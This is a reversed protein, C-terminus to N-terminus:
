GDGVGQGSRVAPYLFKRRQYHPGDHPIEGEAASPSQPDKRIRPDSSLDIPHVTETMGSQDKGMRGVKIGIGGPDPKGPDLSEDAAPLDSRRLFPHSLKKLLKLKARYSLAQTVGDFGLCSIGFRLCIGFELPSHAFRSNRSYLVNDHQVQNLM